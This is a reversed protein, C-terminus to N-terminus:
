SFAGIHFPSFPPFSFLLLLGVDWFFSVLLALRCVLVGGFSFLLEMSEYKKTKADALKSISSM